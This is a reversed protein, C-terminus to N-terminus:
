EHSGVLILVTIILFSSKRSVGHGTLTQSTQRAIVCIIDIVFLTSELANPFCVLENDGTRERKRGKQSPMDVDMLEDGDAGDGDILEEAELEVPHNPWLNVKGDEGGTVLTHNQFSLHTGSVSALFLCFGSRSGLTPFTRSWRSWSDM